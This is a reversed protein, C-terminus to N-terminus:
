MAQIETEKLSNLDCFTNEAVYRRGGVLKTERCTQTTSASLFTTFAQSPEIYWEVKAVGGAPMSSESVREMVFRHLIQLWLSFLNILANIMVGVTVAIKTIQSTTELWCFVWINQLNVKCIQGTIIALHINLSYFFTHSRNPHIFILLQQTLFARCRCAVKM